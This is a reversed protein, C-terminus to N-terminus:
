PTDDLRKRLDDPLPWQPHQQRFADLRKRAAKDDGKAYLARIADLEATLPAPMPAFELMPSPAAMPAPTMPSPPAPPSPPPPPAPPAPAALNGAAHDPEPHEVAASPAAEAVPAPAPAPNTSARDIADAQAPAQQTADAADSMSALGAPKDQPQPARAQSVTSSKPLGAAPAAMRAAPSPPATRKAALVKAAPPLPRAPAAPMSEVSARREDSAANERAAAMNAAVKAEAAPISESTAAQSAVPPEPPLKRMQWALGAALVLTAATGFAIPWRPRRHARTPTDAVAQAAMRRVAADLAPGPENQPLRAYLAKLEDDGPLADDDHPPPPLPTNM